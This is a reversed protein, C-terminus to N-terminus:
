LWCGLLWSCSTPTCVYPFLYSVLMWAIKIHPRVSLSLFLQGDDLCDLCNHSKEIICDIQLM